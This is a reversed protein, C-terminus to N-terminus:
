ESPATEATKTKSRAGRIAFWIGAAIAFIVIMVGVYVGSLEAMIFLITIIM